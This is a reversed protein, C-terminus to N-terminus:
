QPIRYTKECAQFGELAWHREQVPLKALWDLGRLRDEATQIRVGWGLGEYFNKLFKDPVAPNLERFSKEFSYGDVMWSLMCRIGLGKFFAGIELDTESHRRDTIIDAAGPGREFPSFQGLMFYIGEREEPSLKWSYDIYEDLLNFDNYFNAQVWNAYFLGRAAPEIKSLIPDDPKFDIGEGAGAAYGLSESLHSRMKEPVAAKLMEWKAPDKVNKEFQLGYFSFWYLFFRDPESYTRINKLYSEFDPFLRPWIHGRSSGLQAYSYGKYKMVQGWPERFLISQFGSLSILVMLAGAIKGFRIQSAGIGALIFFFFHFPVFYRCDDFFLLFSDSERVATLEVSSLWYASIYVLPYVLLPVLPKFGGEKRFIGRVAKSYLPFILFLGLFYYPYSVFAGQIKGASNFGFSMPISEGILRFLRPFNFSFAQAAYVESSDVHPRLVIKVFFGIGEFDHTLNYFFWPIMGLTGGCIWRVLNRRNFFDKRDLFLWSAFCAAITNFVIHTFWFGLGCILGFLFLIKGSKGGFFYWYFLIVIGISWIISESHFGMAVLSLQTFSPPAIIFLLGAWVAAPLGFYKRIFLFMLILTGLAVSLPALKLAFLSTGFLLFFPVALAGIVLSGGSYHDAQYNIFPMKLGTIIEKAIAGRYLEEVEFAYSGASLLVTLRITLFLLCLGTLIM